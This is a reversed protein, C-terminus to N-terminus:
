TVAMSLIQSILQPLRDVQQSIKDMEGNLEPLQNGALIRCTWKWGFDSGDPSRRRGDM